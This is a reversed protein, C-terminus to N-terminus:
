VIADLLAGPTPGGQLYAAVSAPPDSSLTQDGNQADGEGRRLEARAEAQRAAAEAAVRRDQGSPQRPALAARRVQQMKRITAAPDDPVAATDIRVEGGVAYSRGDPGKQEEFSAGGRAYGGAAAQHAREHQRVERDRSQLERVQQQEEATLEGAEARPSSGAATSDEVRRAPPLSAAPRIASIEM